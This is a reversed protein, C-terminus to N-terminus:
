SNILDRRRDNGQSWDPLRRGQRAIPQGCRPPQLNGTMQANLKNTENRWARWGASSLGDRNMDVLRALSSAFRDSSTQGDMTSAVREIWTSWVAEGPGDDPWALAELVLTKASEERELAGKLAEVGAVTWEVQTTSPRYLHGAAVGANLTKNTEPDDWWLLDTSDSPPAMRVKDMAAAVDQISSRQGADIQQPNM